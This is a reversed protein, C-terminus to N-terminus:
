SPDLDETLEYLGRGEYRLKGMKVLEEWV